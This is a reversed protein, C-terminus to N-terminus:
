FIFLIMLVVIIWGVLAAPIWILLAKRRSMVRMEDGQSRTTCPENGQPPTRQM